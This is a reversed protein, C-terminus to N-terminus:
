KEFGSARGQPTSVLLEEKDEILLQKLKRRGRSLLSELADVSVEMAEAAEINSVEEFYCLSLAARQREPLKAMADQLLKARAMAELKESPMESEDAFEPLADVNGMRPKRLRDLCTNITVRHLWTTFKAKGAVWNAASKWVKLFVDQTVDEAEAENSMMRRAINMVRQSHTRVLVAAAQRDGRGVKEVLVDDSIAQTQM